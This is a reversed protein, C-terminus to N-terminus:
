KGPKVMKSPHMRTPFLDIVTIRMELKDVVYLIKLEVVRTEKFLIFRVDQGSRHLLEKTGRFPQEALPQMAAGLAEEIAVVRELPFHELLYLLVTQQYRRQASVSVTVEFTKSEAM